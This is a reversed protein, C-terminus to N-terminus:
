ERKMAFFITDREDRSLNLLQSLASIESIKFDGTKMRNYLTERLIGTREAVFTISMGKEEICKRLASIDTMECRRQQNLNVIDGEHIVTLM